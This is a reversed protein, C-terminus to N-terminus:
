ALSYFLIYSVGTGRGDLLYETGDPQKNHYKALDLQSIHQDDCVWWPNNPTNRHIVSTYHGGTVRDGHHYVVGRLNYKNIKEISMDDSSYYPLNLNINVNVNDMIKSTRGRHDFANRKIIIILNNGLNSLKMSRKYESAQTNEICVKPINETDFVEEQLFLELLDNVDLTRGTVPLPLELTQHFYNFKNEIRMAEGICKYTTHYFPTYSFINNIISLTRSQQYKELLQYNLDINNFERTPLLSNLRNIIELKDQTFYHNNGLYAIAFNLEITLIELIKVLVESADEQKGLGRMGTTTKILTHQYLQDRYANINIDSGKDARLYNDSMTRITSFLFPGSMLNNITTGLINLPLQLLCMFDEINFLCQMISNFFCSNRNWILGIPQQDYLGISRLNCMNYPELIQKNYNKLLLRSIDKELIIHESVPLMRNFNSDIVSRNEGDLSPIRGYIENLRPLLESKTNPIITKSIDILEANIALIQSKAPVVIISKPPPKPIPESSITKTKTRKRSVSKDIICRNTKTNLIKGPPCKKTPKVSVIPKTVSVIPNTVSVIPNTVSVTRTKVLSTEPKKSVKKSQKGKVVKKMKTGNTNIIPVFQKPPVIKLSKPTKKLSKKTVTKNLSDQLYDIANEISHPHLKVADNIDKKAYGMSVLIDYNDNDNKAHAILYELASQPDKRKQLAIEIDKQSFGMSLLQEM